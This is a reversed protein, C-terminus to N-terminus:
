DRGLLERVELELVRSTAESAFAFQQQKLDIEAKSSEIAQYTQATKAAVKHIRASKHANELQLREPLRTNIIQHTQNELEHRQVTLQVQAERGENEAKSALLDTSQVERHLPMLETEIQKLRLHNESDVKALSNFEM